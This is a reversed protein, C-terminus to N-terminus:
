HKIVFQGRLTLLLRINQQPFKTWGGMNIRLNDLIMEIVMMERVGVYESGGECPETVHSEAAQHRMLMDKPCPIM